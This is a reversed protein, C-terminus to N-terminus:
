EIVGMKLFNRITERTTGLKEATEQMNKNCQLYYNKVAKIKAQEGIENLNKGRVPGEIVIEGSFNDLLSPYIEDIYIDENSLPAIGSYNIVSRAIVNKLERINGPWNYNLMKDIAEESFVPTPTNRKYEKAYKEFFYESLLPIEDKRERLPPMNIVYTSLRQYLDGRFTNEKIKKKLDQNTAFILRVDLKIEENSGVRTVKKEEIVRLLKVQMNLNMEGIEDLFLTGGNALEFKGPKDVAGTFAGKKTGFLESEMLDYPIAGCNVNVKIKNWRDSLRHIAEAILEKGVGSEGQILVNASIPAVNKVRDIIHLLTANSYVFGIEKLIEVKSKDNWIPTLKEIIRKAKEFDDIGFSNSKEGDKDRRDLYLVGSLSGSPNLLPVVIISVIYNDRVSATANVLLVKQYFQPQMTTIVEQLKATSFATAPTDKSKALVTNNEDAIICSTADFEKRMLTLFEDYKVKPNYLRNLSDFYTELNMTYFKLIALYEGKVAICSINTQNATIRTKRVLTSFIEWKFFSIVRINREGM